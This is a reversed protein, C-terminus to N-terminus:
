VSGFLVGKKNRKEKYCKSSSKTHQSSSHQHSATATNTGDVWCLVRSDTIICPHTPVKSAEQHVTYVDCVPGGCVVMTEDMLQYVMTRTHDAVQVQTAYPSINHKSWLCLVSSARCVEILAGPKLECPQEHALEHKDVTILNSGFSTVWTSNTDANYEFVASVRSVARSNIKINCDPNRNHSKAHMLFVCTTRSCAVFCDEQQACQIVDDSRGLTVVQSDLICEVFNEGEKDIILLRGIPNQLM